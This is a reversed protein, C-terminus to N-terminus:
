SLGARSERQTLARAGGPMLGDRYEPSKVENSVNFPM